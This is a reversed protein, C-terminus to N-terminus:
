EKINFLSLCLIEHLDATGYWKDNQFYLILCQNSISHEPINIVFFFYASSSAVINIM